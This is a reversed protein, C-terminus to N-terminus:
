SCAANCNSSAFHIKALDFLDDPCMHRSEPFVEINKVGLERVSETISMDQKKVLSDGLFFVGGFGLHEFPPFLSRPHIAITSVGTSSALSM